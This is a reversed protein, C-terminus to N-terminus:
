TKDSYDWVDFDSLLYKKLKDNYPKFYDQLKRRLEPKVDEYEYSANNEQIRNQPGFNFVKGHIENEWEQDYSIELFNCVKKLVAATNSFFDESKIVLMQSPDFNKLYNELHRVYTSKILTTLLWNLRVEVNNNLVQYVPINLEAAKQQTKKYHCQMFSDWPQADTQLCDEILQLEANALTEFDNGGTYRQKKLDTRKGHNYNSYARDVPERFMFILKADPLYKKIRAPADLTNLYEPTGEGTIYKRDKETISDFSFFNKMYADMSQNYHVFKSSFFRVEKGGFADTDPALSLIQPHQILYSYLSTTGCKQGGVIIFSPLVRKCSDNGCGSPVFWQTKKFEDATEEFIENIFVNKVLINEHIEMYSMMVQHYVFLIVIILFLLKLILNLTLKM